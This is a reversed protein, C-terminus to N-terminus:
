RISALGTGPAVDVTVSLGENGLVVTGTGTLPAGSAGRPVGRGDFAVETTGGFSASQISVGRFEAHRRYDMELARGRDGPDTVATTRDTSTVAYREEVPLFVVRHVARTSVARSQAYRIDSVMRRAAAHLKADQFVSREPVGLMALIGIISIMLVLEILTFGRGARPFSAAPLRTPNAASM